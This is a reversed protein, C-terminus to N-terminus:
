EAGDLRRARCLVRRHFNVITETSFMSIITGEAAARWLPIGCGFELNWNMGEMEAFIDNVSMEEPEPPKRKPEARLERVRAVAAQAAALRTDDQGLTEYGRHKHKALYKVPLEYAAISFPSYGLEPLVQSLEREARAVEVEEPTLGPIGLLPRLEDAANPTM